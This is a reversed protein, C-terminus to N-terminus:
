FRGCNNPAPKGAFRDAIWALAEAASNMGSRAHDGGPLSLYDVREGRRCLKRAYEVTVQPSVITDEVSQAIFVPGHVKRTSVSNHRALRAWEPKSALDLNRISHRVSLIGAITGLKPSADLTVCNNQALRRVVGRNISNFLEGLPAGLRESWSYSLFAMLMARVNKDSALRLNELLNTPPAIAATGKLDLDRGYQRMISATWLAAFGGQSEGWVVLDRGAHAAPIRRAARVADIVSHATERGMLYGHQIPSGLGPYDPAVVVYGAAIMQSLGPTVKWFDPNTSLACKEAVGSTGHAWAVIDRETHPPPGSPVVVMGTAEIAQNTESRTWYRIRWAQMGAPADHVAQASILQGATQAQLPAGLALAFLAAILVLFRM